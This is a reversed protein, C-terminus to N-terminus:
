GIHGLFVVLVAAYAAVSTLLEQNKARSVQSVAAAFFLVAFVVIGLKWDLPKVKVLVIM